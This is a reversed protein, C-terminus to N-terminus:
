RVAAEGQHHAFAAPEERRFAASVESLWAVEDAVEGGIEAWRDSNRTPEAGSRHRRLAYAIGCAEILAPDDGVHRRAEALTGAPLYDRLTLMGDRIEIVRRYLRLRVEDVGALELPARRRPFLIVEPFTRRMVQWLPRLEWLRRYAHVILRLRGAAPMATGIVGVILGVTRVAGAAPELRDVSLTVGLSHAAILATKMVVYLAILFTGTAIVRLGYRLTGAPASRAIRWFLVTAVALAAGLYANLVVWYGATTPGVATSMLETGKTKLDGPTAATLIILTALVSAALLLQGRIARPHDTDYDTILSLLRLLFYAAVVALLHPIIQPEPVLEGALATIGPTAATRGLALSSLTAWLARRRADRWLTPLRVAVIGWLLVLVIGTLAGNV